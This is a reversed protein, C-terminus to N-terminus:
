QMIVLYDLINKHGETILKPMRRRLNRYIIPNNFYKHNEAWNKMSYMLISLHHNFDGIKDFYSFGIDRDILYKTRHFKLNDHVHIIGHYHLRSKDDFEPYLCYHRSFRNLYKRILYMDENYLFRPDRRRYVPSITVGYKTAM